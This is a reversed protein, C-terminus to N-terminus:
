FVLHMELGLFVKTIKAFDSTKQTTHGTIKVHMLGGILSVNVISSRDMGLVNTAFLMFSDLDINKGIAFVKTERNISRM